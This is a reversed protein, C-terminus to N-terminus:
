PFHPPVLAEVIHEAFARRVSESALVAPADRAIQMTGLYTAYALIARRTAVVPTLGLERYCQGLFEIRAAAVRQLMRKVGPEAASSLAAHLPAGRGADAVRAFLLRLRERPDAVDNLLAIVNTTDRKEWLELAAGLLEARNEFHWYFSGKTVGLRKAVPEVAVGEVGRHSLAWM